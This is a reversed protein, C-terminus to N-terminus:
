EIETRVGDTDGRMVIRSVSLEQKYEEENEFFGSTYLYPDTYEIRGPSKAIPRSLASVVLSHVSVKSQSLASASMSRVQASKSQTPAFKGTTASRTYTEKYIGKGTAKQGKISRRAIETKKDRAM